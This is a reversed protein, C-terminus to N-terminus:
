LLVSLLFFFFSLRSFLPYFMPLWTSPATPGSHLCYPYWQFARCLYALHCRNPPLLLAPAPATAIQPQHRHGFFCCCPSDYLRVYSPQAPSPAVIRTPSQMHPRARYRGSNTDSSASNTDSSESNAGFKRLLNRAGRAHDSFIVRRQPSLADPVKRRSPSFFSQLM